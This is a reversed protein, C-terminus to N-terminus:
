IFYILAPSCTPSHFVLLHLFLHLQVDQVEEKISEERKIRTCKYSPIDESRNVPVAPPSRGQEM